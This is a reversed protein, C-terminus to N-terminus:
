IRGLGVLLLRLQEAAPDTWGNDDAAFPSLERGLRVTLESPSAIAPQRTTAAATRARNSTENGTTM